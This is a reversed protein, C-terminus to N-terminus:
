RGCGPWDDALATLPFQPATVHYGDAQLREIIGRWCSGDPGRATCSSSTRDRAWRSADKGEPGTTVHNM